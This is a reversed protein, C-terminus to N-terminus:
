VYKLIFICMGPLAVISFFLKPFVTRKSRCRGCGTSSTHFAMVLGAIRFNQCVPVFFKIELSGKVGNITDECDVLSINTSICVDADMPFLLVCRLRLTLFYTLNTISRIIARM